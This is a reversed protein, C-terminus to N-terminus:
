FISIYTKFGLMAADRLAHQGNPNFYYQFDPEFTVGRMVHIAYNFEIIEANTQVGTAHNPLGGKNESMLLAETDRTGPAISTYTFALGISDMPRAPWFGRNELAGYVEFDRVATRPDNYIFGALFTLGATPSGGKYHILKQDTMMYTQWSHPDTMATGGASAFPQGNVNYYNDPRPVDEYTFGFKYHGPLNGHAGFKPEWQFEVPVEYGIINAGNFKFGTRHQFNMYIGNEAFYVGTQIYMDPRPRAKIRFAWTAAPYSGYFTSDAAGKPRGCMSNNMFQCFLPSAAFDSMQSMRGGAFDLRGGLLTEEGYASVLHVAVNGGGGYIESSHALWDGFMRNATTGYRGVTIVHTSFGRIGALQEWNINLNASYQGANSAGQRYSVYRAGRTPPTVAGAFENTNDFHFSIGRNTLWSTIGGPDTFVSEPRPLPPVSSASAPRYTVHPAVYSAGHTREIHLNSGSEQPVATRDPATPNGAATPDTAMPSAAQAPTTPATPAADAISPTSGWAWASLASVSLVALTRNM